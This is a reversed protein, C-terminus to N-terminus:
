YYLEVEKINGACRQQWGQLTARTLLAIAQYFPHQAGQQLRELYRGSWCLLHDGLFEPLWQPEQEELWAAMMLMLGIHDEPEAQDFHPAIGHSQMWQRLQLTSSGFLVSEKDLYVSGWPPAPLAYPGIFLRQFADSLSEPYTASAAIDNAIAASLANSLDPWQALGDEQALLRILPQVQPSEPPFYLLAGLIKGTVGILATSMTVEYGPPLHMPLKGGIFDVPLLWDL